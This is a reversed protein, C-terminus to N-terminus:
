DKKDFLERLKEETDIKTLEDTIDNKQKFLNIDTEQCFYLKTKDANIFWQKFDNEDNVAVLAEFLERNTGCDIRDTLNDSDTYHYHGHECVFNEGAIVYKFNRYSPEYGLMSAFWILQLNAEHGRLLCNFKNRM